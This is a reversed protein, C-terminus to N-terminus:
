QFSRVVVRSLSSQQLFHVVVAQVIWFTRRRARSKARLQHKQCCWCKAGTRIKVSLPFDEYCALQRQITFPSTTTATVDVMAARVDGACLPKGGKLQKVRTFRYMVNTLNRSRRMNRTEAPEELVRRTFRIM